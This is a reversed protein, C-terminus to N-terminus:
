LLGLSHHCSKEEAGHEAAPGSPARGRRALPAMTAAGRTAQYAETGTLEKTTSIPMHRGSHKGEPGSM